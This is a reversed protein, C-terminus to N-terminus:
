ATQMCTKLRRIKTRLSNAAFFSGSEPLNDARLLGDLTGWAAAAV